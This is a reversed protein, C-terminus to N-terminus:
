RLRGRRSINESAQVAEFFESRVSCSMLQDNLRRLDDTSFKGGNIWVTTLGPLQDFLDLAADSDIVSMPLDLEELHPMDRLLSLSDVDVGSCGLFALRKVNQLRSIRRMTELTIRSNAVCLEELQTCQELWDLCDDGIADISFEKLHPLPALGAFDGDQAASRSIRLTTITPLRCLKELTLRSAGTDVITVTQLPQSNLLRAIIEDGFTAGHIALSELRDLRCLSAAARASLPAGSPVARPRHSPLALSKVERFASIRILAEDSVSALSISEVGRLGAAWEGLYETIWEDDSSLEYIGDHSDLYNLAQLRRCAPISVSVVIGGVSLMLLTSWLRWSTPIRVRRPGRGAINSDAKATSAPHHMVSHTLRFIAGIYEYRGRSFNDIPVEIV